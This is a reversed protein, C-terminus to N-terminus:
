NVFVNPKRESKCIESFISHKFLLHKVTYVNNQWWIDRLGRLRCIDESHVLGPRRGWAVFRRCRSWLGALLPEFRPPSTLRLGLQWCVTLLTSSNTRWDSHVIQHFIVQPKITAGAKDFPSLLFENTWRYCFSLYGPEYRRLYFIIFCQYKPMCLGKLNLQCWAM